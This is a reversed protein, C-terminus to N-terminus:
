IALCIKILISQFYSFNSIRFGCGWWWFYYYYYYIFFLFSLFFTPNNKPVWEENQPYRSTNSRLLLIVHTFYMDNFCKYFSILYTFIVQQHFIIVHM